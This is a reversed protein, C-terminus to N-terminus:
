QSRGLHVHFSCRGMVACHCRVFLVAAGRSGEHTQVLLSLKRFDSRDFFSDSLRSAVFPLFYAETEAVSSRVKAHLREVFDASGHSQISLLLLLVHECQNDRNDLQFGFWNTVESFARVLKENVPLMNPPLESGDVYNFDARNTSDDIAPMSTSRKIFM